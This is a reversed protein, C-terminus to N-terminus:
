LPTYRFVIIYEKFSVEVPSLLSYLIYHGWGSGPGSGSGPGCGSGPGNGSKPGTGGRVQEQSRPSCGSGPRERPRGEVQNTRWRTTLVLWAGHGIDIKCPIAVLMEYILDIVIDTRRPAM